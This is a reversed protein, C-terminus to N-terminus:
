TRKSFTKILKIKVYDICLKNHLPSKKTIQLGLTFASAIFVHNTAKFKMTMGQLRGVVVRTRM